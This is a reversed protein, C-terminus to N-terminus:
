FARARGERRGALLQGTRAAFEVIQARAKVFARFRSSEEFPAQRRYRLEFGIQRDTEALEVFLRSGRARRACSGARPQRTLEVGVIAAGTLSREVGQAFVMAPRLSSEAFALFTALM